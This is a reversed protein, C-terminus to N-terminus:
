MKKVGINSRAKKLRNSLQKKYEDSYKRRKKIKLIKSWKELDKERFNIMFEYDCDLLIEFWLGSNKIRKLGYTKLKHTNTGYDEFTYTLIGDLSYVSITGGLCLIEYHKVENRKIIYQDDYKKLYKEFTM